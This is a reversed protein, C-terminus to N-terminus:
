RRLVVDHPPHDRLHPHRNTCRARGEPTLTCTGVRREIFGNNCPVNGNDSIRLRGDEGFAGTIGGQCNTGDTFTQTQEGRGAADFCMQWDRVRLVPGGRGRQMEYDSDLRWCGELLGIDRENWRDEAIDRPPDPPTEPLAAVPATCQPLAAVRRQLAAIEAELAARHAAATDLRAQPAPDQVPPCADAFSLGVACAPLILMALGLAAAAVLLPLGILAARVM